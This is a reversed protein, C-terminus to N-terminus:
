MCSNSYSINGLSMVHRDMKEVEFCIKRHEWLLFFQSSHELNLENSVKIHLLSIKLCWQGM